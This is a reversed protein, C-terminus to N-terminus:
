VDKKRKPPKDGVMKTRGCECVFEFTRPVFMMTGEGVSVLKGGYDRIFQWKHKHSM